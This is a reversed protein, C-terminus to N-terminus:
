RRVIPAGVRVLTADRAGHSGRPRAERPPSALHHPRNAPELAHSEEPGRGQGPLLPLAPGRRSRTRRLDDKTPGREKAKTRWASAITLCYLPTTSRDLDQIRAGILEGARLGTLLLGAALARESLRGVTSHILKGIEAVTLVQDARSSVSSRAPLEVDSTDLRIGNAKFLVRWYSM